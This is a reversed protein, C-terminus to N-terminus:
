LLFKVLNQYKLLYPSSNCTTSLTAGSEATIRTDWVKFWVPFQSTSQSYNCGTAQGAGPRVRRGAVLSFGGPGCGGSCYLSSSRIMLASFWSVLM